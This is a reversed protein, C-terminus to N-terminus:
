RHNRTIYHDAEKIAKSWTQDADAEEQALILWDLAGQDLNVGLTDFFSKVGANNASMTAANTSGSFMQVQTTRVPTVDLGMQAAINAVLCSPTGNPEVYICGMTHMPNRRTGDLELAAVRIQELTYPQM